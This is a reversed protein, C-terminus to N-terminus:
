KERIKIFQHTINWFIINCLSRYVTEMITKIWLLNICNQFLYVNKAPHWRYKNHFCNVISEFYLLCHYLLRSYFDFHCTLKLFFSMMVLITINLTMSVPIRWLFIFQHKDTDISIACYNLNIVQRHNMENPIGIKFNM